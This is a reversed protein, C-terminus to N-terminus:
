RYLAKVRGLSVPTVAGGSAVRVRLMLNTGEWRKWDGNQRYWTHDGRWAGTDFSAADCNPLDYFQEWAAIFTTDRPVCLVRFDCWGEFSGLEPRVWKPVGNEPWLMEGPVGGEFDFIAIRFGEWERNPWGRHCYIRLGEVYMEM